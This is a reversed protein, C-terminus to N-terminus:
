NAWVKFTFSEMTGTRVIVTYWTRHKVQTTYRKQGPMATMPTGRTKMQAATYRGPAISAFWEGSYNEVQVELTDGFIEATGSIPLTGNALVCIDNKGFLRVAREVVTTNGAPDSATYTITYPARYNFTNAAFDDPNFEGFDIQVNTKDWATYIGDKYDGVTFDYLDDRNYGDPNQEFYNLSEGNRFLIVPYGKDLVDTKIRVDTARYLMDEFVFDTNFNTPFKKIFEQKYATDGMGPEMVPKNLSMKITMDQNSPANGDAELIEVYGNAPQKSGTNEGYSWEVNLVEPLTDDINQITVTVAQYNGAADSVGFQYVGNDRIRVALAGDMTELPRGVAANGGVFGGDLRKFSTLTVDALPDTGDTGDNRAFTVNAYGNHEGYSVVPKVNPAVTDINGVEATQTVTERGLTATVTVTGNATFRYNNGSLETVLGTSETMKIRAGLKNASAKVVVARNTPKEISHSFSLTLPKVSLNSITVTGTKILREGKRITYTYSGNYETEAKYVHYLRGGDLVTGEDSLPMPTDTDGTLRVDSLSLDAGLVRLTIAAREAGETKPTYDISGYDAPAPMNQTVIEETVGQANKIQFAFSGSQGPLFTYADLGGNNEITVGETLVEIKAYIATYYQGAAIPLLNGAADEYLYSVRYDVDKIPPQPGPDYGLTKTEECVIGAMNVARMRVTVTDHSGYAKAFSYDTLPQLEGNLWLECSAVGSRADFASAALTWSGDENPISLINLSPGSGQVQFELRIDPRSNLTLNVAKLLIKGFPDNPYSPNPRLLLKKYVSHGASLRQSLTEDEAVDQATATVTGSPDVLATVADEDEFYYFETENEKPRVEITLDKPVQSGDAYLSVWSEGDWPTHNAYDTYYGIQTSLAPYAIPYDADGFKELAVDSGDHTTVLLSFSAGPAFKLIHEHVFDGRPLTKVFAQVRELIRNYLTQDQAYRIDNWDEASIGASILAEQGDSGDLLSWPLLTTAYTTKYTGNVTQVGTAPGSDFEINPVPRGDLASPVVGPSYVQLEDNRPTYSYPVYIWETKGPAVQLEALLYFLRFESLDRLEFSYSEKGLTLTTEQTDPNQYAVELVRSDMTLKRADLYAQFRDIDAQSVDTLDIDDSGPIYNENKDPIDGNADLGENKGVLAFNLVPYIDSFFEWGNRGYGYGSGKFGRTNWDIPFQGSVSPSVITNEDYFANHLVRNSVVTTSPERDSYVPFNDVRLSLTDRVGFEGGSVGYELELEATCNRKFRIGSVTGDSNATIEAYEKPDFNIHPVDTAYKVTGYEIDANEYSRVENDAIASISLSTVALIGLPDTSQFAYSGAATQEWTPLNGSNLYNETVSLEDFPNQTGGTYDYPGFMLKLSLDGDYGIDAVAVGTASGTLRDNEYTYTLASQKPYTNSGYDFWLGVGDQDEPYVDLNQFPISYSLDALYRGYAAQPFVINQGVTHGYEAEVNTVDFSWKEQPNIYVFPITESNLGRVNEAEAVLEYYGSQLSDMSIDLRTGDLNLSGNAYVVNDDGPRRIRYTGNTIEAASNVEIFCSADFYDPAKIKIQPTRNYFSVTFSKSFTYRGSMKDTGSISLRYIGDFKRFDAQENIWYGQDAFSGITNNELDEVAVPFLSLKENQEYSIDLKNWWYNLNYGEFNGSFTVDVTQGGDNSDVSIDGESIDPLNSLSVPYTKTETWNGVSDAARYELTGVFTENPQLTMPAILEGTESNTQADFWEGETEGTRLYRYEVQAGNLDEATFVHYAAAEATGDGQIGQGMKATVRPPMNDLMVETMESKLPVGTIDTGKILFAVTGEYLKGSKPAIRVGSVRVDGDNVAIEYSNGVRGAENIYVNNRLTQLPTGNLDTVDLYSADTVYLAAKGEAAKATENMQVINGVWLGEQYIGTKDASAYLTRSITDGDPEVTLEPMAGRSLQKNLIIGYRGDETQAAYNTRMGDEGMTAGTYRAALTTIDLQKGYEDLCAYQLDWYQKGDQTYTGGPNIDIIGEPDDPQLDYYYAISNQGYPGLSWFTIPKLVKGTHTDGDPAAEFIAGRIGSPFSDMAETFNLKIKVTRLDRSPSQESYYRPSDGQGIVEVSSFATGITNFTASALEYVLPKGMQDTVNLANGGFYDRVPENPDEYYLTIRNGVIGDPVIFGCQFKTHGSGEVEIAYKFRKPDKGELRMRLGRVTKPDVPEDFEVEVTIPSNNIYTGEPVFDSTSPIGGSVYSISRIGPASSDRLMLYRESWVPPTGGKVKEWGGGSKPVLEDPQDDLLYTWHIGRVSEIEHWGNLQVFQNQSGTLSKREETVTGQWSYHPYDRDGVWLTGRTDTSSVVGGATFQINGSKAAAIRFVEIDERFDDLYFQRMGNGYTDKDLYVWDMWPLLNNNEQFEARTPRDANGKYFKLDDWRNTEAVVPLLSTPLLALMMLLALATSLVKRRYRVISTGRKM